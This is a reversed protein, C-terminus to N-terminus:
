GLLNNGGELLHEVVSSRMLLFRSRQPEEIRFGRARWLAASAGIVKYM